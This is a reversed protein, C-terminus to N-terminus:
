GRLYKKISKATEDTLIPSSNAELIIFKSQSKALVDFGVYDIDLGKAADICAKDIHNFGEKDVSELLWDKKKRRKVYRGIVEGMFVVIRFEHKHYYVQTYLEADPLEEGQFAYDIDQAQNGKKSKRIAVQDWHEPVKDRHIAYEPHPVNSKTLAKFTRVKDICRGVSVTKNIIRNCKVKRNCGYNFLVDYERYDRRESKYPNFVDAKLIGALEEASEKGIEPHIICIKM